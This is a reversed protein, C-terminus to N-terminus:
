GKALNWLAGLCTLMVRGMEELDEEGVKTTTVKIDVFGAEELVKKIFKSDIDVNIGSKEMAEAFKKMYLAMGSDAPASDDDCLLKRLPHDM